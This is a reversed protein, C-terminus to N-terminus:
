GRILVGITYLIWIHAPYFVYFMYKSWKAHYGRAGNYLLIPIIAFIMMWQYNLVFLNDYTFVEEIPIGLSGLGLSILLMLIVYAFAMQGKRERFLYFIPTMAVGLISAETISGGMIALIIYLTGLAYNRTQKTWEIATLLLLALLLSLFINNMISVSESPLALTLLTSGLKTIVAWTFLRLMYKGRNRTHFFGEVIFYFFIPAVIRGLWGFWIPMDPLFQKMHDLLMLTMGLLKLKFGDLRM